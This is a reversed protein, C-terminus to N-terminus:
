QRAQETTDLRRLNCTVPAHHYYARVHDDNDEGAYASESSDAKTAKSVMALAPLSTEKRGGGVVKTNQYM